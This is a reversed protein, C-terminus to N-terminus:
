NAEALKLLNEEITELTRRSVVPMLDFGRNMVLTLGENIFSEASATKISTIQLEAPEAEEADEMSGNMGRAPHGANYTFAVEAMVMKGVVTAFIDGAARLDIELEEIEVSSRGVSSATNKM